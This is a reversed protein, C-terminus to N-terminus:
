GPGATAPVSQMKPAQAPPSPSRGIRGSSIMERLHPMIQTKFVDNTPFREDTADPNTKREVDLLINKTAEYYKDYKSTDDLVKLAGVRVGKEAITMMSQQNPRFITRTESSVVTGDKNIGTTTVDKKELVKNKSIEGVIQAGVTEIAEAITIADAPNRVLSEIMEKTTDQKLIAIMIDVAQEMITGVITLGNNDSSRYQEVYKKPILADKISYLEKMIKDTMKVPTDRRRKYLLFIIAFILGVLITTKIADQKM